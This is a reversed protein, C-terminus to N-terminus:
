GSSANIRLVGEEGVMWKLSGKIVTSEKEDWNNETPAGILEYFGDSEDYSVALTGLLVDKILPGSVRASVGYSEDDDAWRGEIAGSM